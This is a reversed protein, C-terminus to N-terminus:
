KKTKPKFIMQEGKAQWPRGWRDYAYIIPITVFLILCALLWLGKYMAALVLLVAIGYRQLEPRYQACWDRISSWIDM